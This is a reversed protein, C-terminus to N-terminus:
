TKAELAALGEEMYGLMSQVEPLSQRGATLAFQMWGDYSSLTINLAQGQELVSAPYIGRLVAGDLYLTTEPGPVNSIVINLPPPGHGALGIFPALLYPSAIALGYTIREIRGMAMLRAKAQGISQSIRRIRSLPDALDTGMDAVVFSLANGALDDAEDRISVPIMATLPETPLAGRDLLYARLAHATMAVVVDNLSVDLARSAAVMRDFSWGGAAVVRAGTVRRNLISRPAQFPVAESSVGRRRDRAQDRLTRITNSVASRATALDLRQAAAPEIGDERKASEHERRRKSRASTQWPPAMDRQDPDDSYMRQMVRMSGVGDFVAHHFKVYLAFRPRGTNAGTEEDPSIGDILHVEWLPRTRDLPVSHVRSIHVMLDEHLGPAPLSSLRLHYDIDVDTDTVWSYIQFRGYPHKLKRDFPWELDTARGFRDHLDRVWGTGADEPYEFVMMVGAHQPTERSEVMLWAADTIPLVM